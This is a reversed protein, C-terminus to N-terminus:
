GEGGRTLERVVRDREREPAAHRAAVEAADDLRKRVAALARLEDATFGRGAEAVEPLDVLDKYAAAVLTWDTADVAAAFAQRNEVWVDLESEFTPMNRDPWHGGEVIRGVTHEAIYLDGLILRAAVRAALKRDRAKHWTQVGGTAVAGAVIGILAALLEEV